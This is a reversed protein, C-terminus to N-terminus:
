SLCELILMGMHRKDLDFKNTDGIMKYIKDSDIIKHKRMQAYKHEAETLDKTVGLGAKNMSVILRSINDCFEQWDQLKEKLAISQLYKINLTINKELITTILEDYASNNKLEAGYRVSLKHCRSKITPLLKATNKPLLFIFSNRPAEELVKLCCNASFDNMLDAETIIAFKYYGFGSSNNLFNQLERVKDITISKTDGKELVFFDPNNEIPLDPNGMVEHAFRKIEDLSQDVKDSTVIWSTAFKRADWFDRLRSQLM